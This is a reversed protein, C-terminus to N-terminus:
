SSRRGSGPEFAPRTAPISATRRAASAACATGSSVSDTSSRIVRPM